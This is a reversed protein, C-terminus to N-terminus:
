TGSRRLLVFPNVAGGRFRYIGYHLHPPTGRANGSDGATGPVTGQEILQGEHISGHRRDRTSCNGSFPTPWTRM